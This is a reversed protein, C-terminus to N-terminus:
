DAAPRPISTWRPWTCGRNALMGTGPNKEGRLEPWSCSRELRHAGAGRADAQQPTM